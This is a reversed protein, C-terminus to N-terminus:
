AADAVIDDDGRGTRDRDGARDATDNLHDGRLAVAEKLDRSHTFNYSVLAVDHYNSKAAERLLAAMHSHSSFGSFRIKGEKKMKSM